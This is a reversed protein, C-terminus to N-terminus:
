VLVVLQRFSKVKSGKPMKKKKSVADKKGQKNKNNRRLRHIGKLLITEEKVDKNTQETPLLIIPFRVMLSELGVNSQLFNDFIISKRIM